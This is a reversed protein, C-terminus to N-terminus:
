GQKEKNKQNKTTPQMEGGRLVSQSSNISATYMTFLYMAFMKKYQGRCSTETNSEDNYKDNAIM